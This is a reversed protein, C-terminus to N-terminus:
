AQAEELYEITNESKKKKRKVRDKMTRATSSTIGMEEAAAKLELGQWFHKDVLEKERASLWTQEVVDEM